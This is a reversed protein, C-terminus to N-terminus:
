LWPGDKVNSPEIPNCNDDLLDLFSKRKSNAAQFYMRCQLIALNSERKGCYNWSSKCFFSLISEFSKSNEEVSM